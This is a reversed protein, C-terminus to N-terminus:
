EAPQLELQETPMLAKEVRDQLDTLRQQLSQAQHYTKSELSLLQNAINLAAALVIKDSSLIHGAERMNRMQEELYQAARQLATVETDPCKVQYSKGFIEVTTELADKTM